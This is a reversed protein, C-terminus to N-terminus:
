VDWERRLRDLWEQQVEWRKEILADAMKNGEESIPFVKVLPHDPFCCRVPLSDSRLIPVCQKCFGMDECVRCLWVEEYESNLRDCEGDCSYTAGFGAYKPNVPPSNEGEVIGQATSEETEQPPDEPQPTPAGSDQAKEAQDTSEVKSETNSEDDKDVVEWEQDTKAKAEVQQQLPKLAIGNAIFANLDDGAIFLAQGLSFYADQDNFPDEDSLMYLAQKVSPRICSKWSRAEDATGHERLWFGLILSPHSARYLWKNALKYKALDEIRAIWQSPDTGSKLAEKANNYYMVSLFKACKKRYGSQAQQFLEDSQDIVTVVREWLPISEERRRASEYLWEGAWYALWLPQEREIFESSLNWDLVNHVSGEVFRGIEYNGTKQMVTAIKDFLLANFRDEWQNNLFITWLSDNQVYTPQNAVQYILETIKEYQETRYLADFYQKVAYLISRDIDFGRGWYFGRSLEYATKASEVAEENRGLEIMWWYLRTELIFGVGVFTETKPLKGLAEKIWYIGQEYDDLSAGYATGLGEKAPWADDDIELANKFFENGREVQGNLTFIWGAGTYWHENKPLPLLDAVAELGELPINYEEARLDRGSFSPNTGEDTLTRFVHLIWHYSEGKRLYGPDDWGSKTLWKSACANVLPEFLPRASKKTSRAWERQEDVDILEANESIIKRVLSSFKDTVLWSEIFQFISTCYTYMLYTGNYFFDALTRTLELTQQPGLRTLDLHTLHKMWNFKIFANLYYVGYRDTIDSTLLKIGAICIEFHALNLDEPVVSCDHWRRTSPDGETRLYDRVRAHSFAVAPLHWSSPIKFTIEAQEPEISAPLDSSPVLVTDGVNLNKLKDEALPDKEPDDAADLFDFEDQDVTDEIHTPQPDPKQESQSLIGIVEFLSSYRGKLDDEIMFCHQGTRVHLLVFLDAIHLPQDICFVLSFLHKLYTRHMQEEVDLRKFVHHLMEDLGKPAQSLSARIAEPSHLNTIQDFVLSAWLFMGQSRSQISDYIQKALTKFEVTAKNKKLVKLVSVEALRKRIFADIDLTNREPTVEIFRERKQLDAIKEFGPDARIDPRTFVAIQIRCKVEDTNISVLQELCSLFKSREAEPAEDLGDVIIFARSVFNQYTATDETFFDLFLQRWANGASAFTEMRRDLTALIHKKFRDNAKATQLAVAKWMEACDQLAPKSDKFYIYSVSTLSPIDSHQPHKNQLMEITRAALMTKGVGPRGFVWLIHAREQEWAQFMADHKIWHGTDKVLKEINGVHERALEDTTATRLWSSLRSEDMENTFTQQDSRQNTLIEAATSELNKVSGYTLAIVLGLENEVYRRLKDVSSSIGDDQSVLTGVWQKFRGKKICSEAKGIIELFYALIDSMKAQLMPDLGRREYEKLRATIDSMQEFLEEVSDYAKQVSYCAKLLYNAAGFVTNAPGYPSNQLGKQIIVFIPELPHFCKALTTSLKRHRDRFLGFNKEGTEIAEKLDSVSKLDRFVNDSAIRRETRSEYDAVANAWLASFSGDASM